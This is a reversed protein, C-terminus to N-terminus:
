LAPEDDTREAFSMVMVDFVDDLSHAPVVFNAFLDPNVTRAGAAITARLGRAM